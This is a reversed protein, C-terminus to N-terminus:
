AVAGAPIIEEGNEVGEPEDGLEDDEDGTGFLSDAMGRVENRAREDEEGVVRDITEQSEGMKELILWIPAGATNLVDYEEKKSLEDPIVPREGIYHDLSGDGLSELSYPEFNRYGRYGGIAIAMKQAKVLVADYNGRAEIIRDSADSFGARVGPATMAGGERIRHLVLEPLDREIEKLLENIQAITDAINIQAVMAFPNSAGDPLYMAPVQDRDTTSSGTEKPAVKIVDKGTAGVFAWIPTITKHIQDDLLSVVDNLEDIKHLLTSFNTAGFKFGEDIHQCMVVPVFGYENDWETLPTGDYDLHYAFPQGNKYTYFKEPTIIERYTYPKLTITGNDNVIEETCPYEFIIKRIDGAGDFDVYKVKAPHVVEMRLREKLPEDVIKIFVDGLKAGTRGYLSKKSGWNSWQWLQRIAARLTDDAGEIPIAGEELKDYDLFGGYLKATYLQILRFIPNYVGRINRYLRRNRKFFTLHKAFSTYATNTYYTEYLDYRSIRAQYDDWPTNYKPVYGSGAIPQTTQTIM